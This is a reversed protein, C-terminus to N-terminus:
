MEVTFKRCSLDDFHFELVTEVASKIVAIDVDLIAYSYTLSVTVDYTKDIGRCKRVKVSQVAYFEEIDNEKKLYGKLENYLNKSNLKMNNGGM